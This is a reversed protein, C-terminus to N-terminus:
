LQCLLKIGQRYRNIMHLYGTQARQHGEQRLKPPRLQRRPARSQLLQAPRSARRQAGEGAEEGGGQGPQM